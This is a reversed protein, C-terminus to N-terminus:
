LRLVYSAKLFVQFDEVLVAGEPYGFSASVGGYLATGPWRLWTVLLSGRVGKDYSDWEQIARISWQPSFALEEKLGVVEQHYVTSGDEKWFAEQSVEPSISLMALPRWLLGVSWSVRPGAFPAAPDYFIGRAVGAELDLSVSATPRHSLEVSVGHVGFEEGGFREQGLDAILSWRFSDGGAGDLHAEVGQQTWTGATNVRGNFNFGPQIWPLAKWGPEVRHSLWAWIGYGDTAAYYGNEMRFDPTNGWTGGEVTFRRDSYGANLTYAFGDLSARETRTSSVLVQGNVKGNTLFRGEGDLSVLHSTATLVPAESESPQPAPSGLGPNLGTRSVDLLDKESYIVGLFSGDGLDVTSRAVLTLAAKGELDEACFGPTPCSAPSGDTGRYEQPREVNERLLSRAPALDLVALAGIGVRGEKGTVKLGVLPKSLLRTYLVGFDTDFYEAGEQFFPRREELYLPQRLNADVEFPDSEVQSYDPNLTADVVINRTLFWRVGLGADLVDLIGPKQWALGQGPDGEDKLSTGYGGVVQPWLEVRTPRSPAHIGTLIASQLGLPGWADRTEPWFALEENRSVKRAFSVGFELLDGRPFRLVSLPVAMEVQYGDATRRGKSDWAADWSTDEEGESDVRADAQIGYPNTIFSFMRQHDLYPDLRVAILDDDYLGDSERACTHARVKGADDKVSFAFWLVNKSQLVRVEVEGTIPGGEQPEYRHFGQALAARSWDREDLVGDVRMVGEAQPVTLVPPPPASAPPGTETRREAEKEVTVEPDEDEEGDERDGEGDAAVSAMLAATLGMWLLSM